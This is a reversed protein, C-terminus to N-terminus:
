GGRSGVIGGDGDIVESGFDFMSDNLGKAPGEGHEFSDKSPFPGRRDSLRHCREINGTHDNEVSNVTKGIEEGVGILKSIVRAIRVGPGVGGSISSMM